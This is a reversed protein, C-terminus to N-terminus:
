RRSARQAAVRQEPQYIIRRVLYGATGCEEACQVVDGVSSGLLAAGLSEFVCVADELYDVDDPGALVVVTSRHTDLDLLEVRCHMTVLDDPAQQPEIYMADELLTELRVIAPVENWCSRSSVLSGLRRRNATTILAPRSWSPRGLGDVDLRDTIQLTAMGARDAFRIGALPSPSLDRQLPRVRCEFWQGVM